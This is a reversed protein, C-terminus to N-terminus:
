KTTPKTANNTREKQNKLQFPDVKQLYVWLLFDKQTNWCPIEPQQM